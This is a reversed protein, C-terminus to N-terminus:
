VPSLRVEARVPPSLLCIMGLSLLWFKMTRLEQPHIITLRNDLFLDFANCSTNHLIGRM